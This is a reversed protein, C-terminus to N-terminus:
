PAGKLRDYKTANGRCLAVPYKRENEQLKHRIAQEPDAGIADCFLLAFVLVDAIEARLRARGDPDLLLADVEADRKWLMTEQLEGAEISLAAALNRPSHFQAWDRANRFALIEEVVREM